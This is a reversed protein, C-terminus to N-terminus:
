AFPKASNAARDGFRSDLNSGLAIAALPMNDTALQLNNTSPIKNIQNQSRHGVRAIPYSDRLKRDSTAAGTAERNRIRVSRPNKRNM